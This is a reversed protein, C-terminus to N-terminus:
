AFYAQIFFAAPAYYRGGHHFVYFIVPLCGVILAFALLLLFSILCLLPSDRTITAATANDVIRKPQLLAAFAPAFHCDTLGGSLGM